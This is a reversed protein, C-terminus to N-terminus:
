ESEELEYTIQIGHQEALLSILLSLLKEGNPENMQTGGHTVEIHKASARAVNAFALVLSVAEKQKEYVQM